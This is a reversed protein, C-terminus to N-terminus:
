KLIKELGVPKNELIKSLGMKSELQLKGNRDVMIDDEVGYDQFVKDIYGNFKEIDEKSIRHLSGSEQDLEDLMLQKLRIKLIEGDDYVRISKLNDLCNVGDGTGKIYVQGLPTSETNGEYITLRSPISSKRMCHRSLMLILAKNLDERLEGTFENGYFGKVYTIPPYEGLLSMGDIKESIRKFTNPRKYKITHTGAEFTKAPNEFVYTNDLVITKTYSCGTHIYTVNEITVRNSVNDFDSDDLGDPCENTKCWYSESTSDFCGYIKGVTPTPNIVTEDESEDKEYKPKFKDCIQKWYKIATKPKLSNKNKAYNLLTAKVYCIYVLTEEENSTLPKYNDKEEDSLSDLPEKTTDVDFLIDKNLIRKLEDELNIFVRNKKMYIDAFPLNDSSSTGDENKLAYFKNDEIRDSCTICKQSETLSVNFNTLVTQVESSQTQKELYEKIKDLNQELIISLGEKKM